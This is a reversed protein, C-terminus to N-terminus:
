HGGATALARWRGGTGALTTLARWRGGFGVDVDVPLDLCVNVPLNAPM